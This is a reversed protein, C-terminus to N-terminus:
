WLVGWCLLTLSETYVHVHLNYYPVPVPVTCTCSYQWLTEEFFCENGLAVPRFTRFPCTYKVHKWLILKLVYSIVESKPLSVM